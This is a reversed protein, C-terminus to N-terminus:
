YANVVAAGVPSFSTIRAWWDRKTAELSCAQADDYSDCTICVASGSGCLFVQQAQPMNRAWSLVEAVEPTVKCAADTLNNWPELDAADTCQALKAVYEASPVQPDKDFAAYAEATSVGVQPRVLMAFGKRPVLSSEFVDGKGSLYSCGGKLFFAVDAGLRSAVTELREDDAEIGWLTAAGLLAAAADSSGGGLGAQAPVVKSLMMHITENADRGLEQALERVARYAINEETPVGIEDIDGSTECKLVIELGQDGDEEEFRRMTLVDHLALAQMVTHVEHFGDERVGGVALVLNVKAPAVLKVLNKM